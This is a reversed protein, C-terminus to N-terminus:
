KKRSSDRLADPLAGSYVVALERNARTLSTYLAGHRELNQPFLAPEVVVVGDFELGRAMEPTLIFLSIQGNTMVRSDEAGRTWGSDHLHRGVKTRDTTIVATTGTPYKTILEFASTVVEAILAKSSVKKVTPSPGEQLSEMVRQKAPLLHNAFTMIQRTSRFGRSFTTLQASEGEEILDLDRAIQDWSHYSWDSRRQNMDGLLTWSGESNAQKLLRWELPRIDQAEDVIVHDFSLNAPPNASWACQAVIPYFRRSQRAEAWAPLRRLDRIWDRDDTLSVDGARNARLAEYVAMVAAEHSLDHLEGALGLEYAAADAFDGIDISVEYFEGDLPGTVKIPLRRVADLFEGIGWAKVKQRYGDIVLSDIVGKVHGAYHKTPGLLLVRPVVGQPTSQEPHVMYAARHAAIVTKGTGPHGQVILPPSASKTVLEYQEPQLTGLLSTLSKGRPAALTSRVAAEARLGVAKTNGESRTQGKNQSASSPEEPTSSGTGTSLNTPSDVFARSIPHAEPQPRTPPAPVSLKRKSEFPGPSIPETHWEDFVGALRKGDSGHALVRTVTVSSNFGPYERESQQYFLRAVPAAWSFVEVDGSNDHWPGIYFSSGSILEEHHQFGVRGVLPGVSPQTPVPLGSGTWTSSRAVSIQVKSDVKRQMETLYRENEAQENALSVADSPPTSDSM